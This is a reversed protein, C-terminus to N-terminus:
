PCHLMSVAQENTVVVGNLLLAVAASSRSLYTTFTISYPELAKALCHKSAPIACLTPIKRTVIPRWSMDQSVPDSKGQAQRGRWTVGFPMASGSKCCWTM